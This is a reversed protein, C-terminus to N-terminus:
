DKFSIELKYYWNEDLPLEDVKKEQEKWEDLTAGAGKQVKRATSCGGVCM